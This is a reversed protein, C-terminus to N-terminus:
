DGFEDELYAIIDDSEYMTEVVDGEEDRVVLFPVQDEGGLALLDDMREENQRPNHATFSLGLESMTARVKSCFPCGEMQYLELQM